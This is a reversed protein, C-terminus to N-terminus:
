ATGGSRLAARIDPDKSQRALDVARAVDPHRAFQTSLVTLAALMEPSKALLRPRQWWAFGRRTVVQALLWDRIRPTPRKGLLRIVMARDQPDRIRERVLDLLKPPLEPPCTDTAATLALRVIQEDADAVAKMIAASRGAPMAFMLKYAERRVRSDEHATQEEASFGEPLRPLGALLVLLNRVVYWPKGPLRAVLLTGIGEGFVELRTLLWRRRSTSGAIELADLLPHVADTGIRELIRELRGVDSKDDLMADRLFVPRVIAQWLPAPDLGAAEAQDHMALLSAFDTSGALETVAAEIGPTSVGLELGMQVLRLANSTTKGRAGGGTYTGPKALLELLDRHQHTSPDELDWDGVLQRVSDRLVDEAGIVVPGRGTEVHSALKGLIRMLSHSPNRELTSAAAQLLDLVAQVPLTRSGRLLLRRRQEPSAGLELVNELTQQDLGGFLEAVKQHLPSGEEVEGLQEGMQLMWDVVARDYGVDGRRTRIAKAIDAGSSATATRGAPAAGAEQAFLMAVNVLGQWIQDAQRNVGTDDGLELQDLPIPELAIHPWRGLQVELAELGLPKGQRWTEAALAGVLDSLEDIPIGPRLQIAALQHHHLREALDRLVPHNEEAPVGDILLQTRTVGITLHNRRQLIMGLHGSLIEMAAALVPHGPPYSRSKNLSVSFQVFFLILDRPLAPKEVSEPLVASPTTVISDWRLFVM